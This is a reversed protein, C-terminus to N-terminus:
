RAPGSRRLHLPKVINNEEWRRGEDEITDLPPRLLTLPHHAGLPQAPRPLSSSKRAERSRSGKSGGRVTLPIIPSPCPFRLVYLARHTKKAIRCASFLTTRGSDPSRSLVQFSPYLINALGVFPPPVIKAKLGERDQGGQSAQSAQGSPM